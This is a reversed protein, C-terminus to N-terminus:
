VHIKCLGAPWEFSFTNRRWWIDCMIGASTIECVKIACRLAFIGDESHWLENGVAKQYGGASSSDISTRSVM